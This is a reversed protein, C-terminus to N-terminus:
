RGLLKKGFDDMERRAEAARASVRHSLTHADLQVQSPFRQGCQPCTLGQAEEPAGTGPSPRRPARDPEPWKLPSVTPKPLRPLTALFTKRAVRVAKPRRAFLAMAFLLFTPALILWATGNDRLSALLLALAGLNLLGLLLLGTGHFGFALRTGEPTPVAAKAGRFSLAAGVFLVATGAIGLWLGVDWGWTAGVLQYSQWTVDASGTPPINLGLDSFFSFVLLFYFAWWSLGIVGWLPAILVRVGRRSRLPCYVGHFAALGLSVSVPLLAITVLVYFVQLGALLTRPDGVITDISMGLPGIAFDFLAQRGNVISSHLSWWPVMLSVVVLTSGALLLWNEKRSAFAKWCPPAM